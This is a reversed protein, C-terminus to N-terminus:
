FWSVFLLSFVDKTIVFGFVFFEILFIGIEETIREIKSLYKNDNFSSILYIDTKTSHRSRFYERYHAAMNIVGSALAYRDNEDVNFDDRRYFPKIISFIDRFLNLHVCNAEPSNRFENFIIEKLHDYRIYHTYILSNLHFKPVHFRNYPKM